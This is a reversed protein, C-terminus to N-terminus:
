VDGALLLFGLFGAPIPTSALQGSSQIHVEAMYLSLFPLGFPFELTLLYVRLSLLPKLTVSSLVLSSSICIM